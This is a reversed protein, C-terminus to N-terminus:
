IVCTTLAAKCSECFWNASSGEFEVSKRCRSCRSQIVTESQRSWGPLEAQFGKSKHCDRSVLTQSQTGKYNRRISAAVGSLRRRDLQDLYAEVLM